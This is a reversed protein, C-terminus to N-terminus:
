ASVAIRHQCMLKSPGAHHSGAFCEERNDRQQHLTQWTKYSELCPLVKGICFCTYPMSDWGHPMSDWGHPMSDWSHPMSHWGHPMSHWSHPMSDWSPPMSHWRGNQIHVRRFSKEESLQTSTTGAQGFCVLRSDCPQQQIQRALIQKLSLIDVVSIRRIETVTNHLYLCAYISDACSTFMWPLSHQVSVAFCARADPKWPLPCGWTNVMLWMLQISHIGPSPSM